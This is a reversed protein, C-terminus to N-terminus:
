ERPHPLKLQQHFAIKTIQVKNSNEGSEFNIGSNLYKIWRWEWVRDKEAQV